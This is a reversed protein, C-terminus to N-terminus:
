FLLLRTSAPYVAKQFGTSLKSSVRCRVSLVETDSLSYAFMDNVLKSLASLVLTMRSILLYTTFIMTGLVVRSHTARIAVCLCDKVGRKKQQSKWVKKTRLLRSESPKLALLILGM